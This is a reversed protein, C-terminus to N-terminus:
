FTGFCASLPREGAVDGREGDPVNFNLSADAGVRGGGGEEEEEL